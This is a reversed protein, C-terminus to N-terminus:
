SDEEEDDQLISEWEGSIDSPSFAEYYADAISENAAQMTADAHASLTSGFYTGAIAAVAFALGMMSLGLRGPLARAAQRAPLTESGTSEANARIRAPLFPDPELHPLRASDTGELMAKMTNFYRGCDECGDLHLEVTRNEERNLRDEYWDQFQKIVHPNKM